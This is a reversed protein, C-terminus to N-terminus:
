GPHEMDPFGSTLSGARFSLPAGQCVYNALPSGNPFGAAWKMQM